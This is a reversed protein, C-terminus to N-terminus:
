PAKLVNHMANLVLYINKHSAQGLLLPTIVPPAYLYQGVALSAPLPVNFVNIQYKQTPLLVLVSVDMILCSEQHAVLIVHQAPLLLELVNLALVRVSFVLNSEQYQRPSTDKRVHLQVLIHEQISIQTHLPAHLVNNPMEM